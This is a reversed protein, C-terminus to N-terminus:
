QLNNVQQVLIIYQNLSDNHRLNHFLPPDRINMLTLCM